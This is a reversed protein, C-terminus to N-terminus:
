LRLRDNGADAITLGCGPGDAVCGWAGARGSLDTRPASLGGAWGTCWGAWSFFRVLGHM